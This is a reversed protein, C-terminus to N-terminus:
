IADNAVVAYAALMFGILMLTHHMDILVHV